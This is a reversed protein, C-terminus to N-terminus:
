TMHSLTVIPFNVRCVESGRGIRMEGIAGCVNIM